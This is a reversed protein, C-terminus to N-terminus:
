PSFGKRMAGFARPVGALPWAPPQGERDRPPGPLDGQRLLRRRDGWAPRSRSPRGGKCAREPSAISRRAEPSTM